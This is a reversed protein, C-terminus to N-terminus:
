RRRRLLALMGLSGLLAARPEPVVVLQLSGEQFYAVRNGSIGDIDYASALSNNALADFVGSGLTGNILTYTGDAVSGWDLGLLDAVGFGSFLTITGTVDLPDALDAVHFFGSNLSLSGGVAGTGGFAGGDVTVASNGLAGTVLLTGASVLTTGTYTNTGSLTLTGSGTKTLGGGTLAGISVTGLTAATGGTQFGHSLTVTPASTYGSGPSTITIGTVTGTAADFDAVATAGTGGGGTITVIPAGVYGSGGTAITVSTLGSGTPAELNQGITINKGNTDITAGGSYIRTSTLGELFTTNDIAARLTGGNFNLFGTGGGKLIGNTTLKGGGDLNLNGIRGSSRTMQVYGAGGTVSWDATGAITLDAGNANNTDSVILAAGTLTSATTINTTGGTAYFVGREGGSGIMFERGGAISGTGTYSVNFNGGTQTFQSRRPNLRWPDNIQLTGGSLTYAGYTGGGVIMGNVGATVTSDNAGAVTITGASQYFASTGNVELSSGNLYTSSTSGGVNASANNMIIFGGTVRMGNSYTNAGSLVLTGTGTKNILDTGSAIVASIEAVKDTGLANVTITPATGDLTLTNAPTANNDILWSGATATDLDSFVLKNLIRASDLSVTRDATIDNTFNATSTSGDAVTGGSWNGTDSWLGSADVAWTGTAAHASHMSFCVLSALLVSAGSFPNTRSKM